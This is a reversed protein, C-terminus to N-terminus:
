PKGERLRQEIARGIAEATGQLTLNAEVFLEGLAVDTSPQIPLASLVESLRQELQRASFSVRGEVVVEALRAVM